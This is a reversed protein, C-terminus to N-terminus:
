RLRTSADIQAVLGRLAEATTYTPTSLNLDAVLLAIAQAAILAM